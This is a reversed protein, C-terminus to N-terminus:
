KSNEKEALLQKLMKDQAELHGHIEHLVTSAQTNVAKMLDQKDSQTLNEQYNALGVVFSIISLIDMFDLERDNM